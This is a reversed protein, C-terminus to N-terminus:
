RTIHQEMFEGISTAYYHKLYGFTEGIFPWGMNGPPLNFRAQKRRILVLFLLLSLVSPLLFIPLQLDTM